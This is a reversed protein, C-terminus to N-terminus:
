LTLDGVHLLPASVREDSWPSRTGLATGPRVEWRMPVRGALGEVRRGLEDWPLRGAVGTTLAETVRVQGSGTTYVTQLVNTDPLYSRDVTFPEAPALLIRGGEEADLLAGFAPVGDIGPLAWWDIAGDLAVLAVSRGDGLGEYSGIPAYGDTRPPPDQGGHQEPVLRAGRVIPDAGEM